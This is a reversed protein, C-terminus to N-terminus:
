MVCFLICREGEYEECFDDIDDIDDVQDDDECFQYFVFVILKEFDVIIIIDYDWLQRSKFYIRSCFECMFEDCMLCKRNIENQGDCLDCLVINDGGEVM